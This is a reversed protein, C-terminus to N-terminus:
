DVLMFSFLVYPSLRAEVSRMRSDWAKSFKGDVTLGFSMWAHSILILAFWSLGGMWPCFPRM